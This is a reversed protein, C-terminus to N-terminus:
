ERGTLTDNFLTLGSPLKQLGFPAPPSRSAREQLALAAVADDVRTLLMDLQEVGQTGAVAGAVMQISGSLSRGLANLNSEEPVSPSSGQLSGPLGTLNLLSSAGAPPNILQCFCLMTLSACYPPFQPGQPSMMVVDKSIKALSPSVTSMDGLTAGSWFIEEILNSELARPYFRVQGRWSDRASRCGPGGARVFLLWCCHPARV